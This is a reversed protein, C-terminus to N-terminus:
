AAAKSVTDRRACPRPSISRGGPRRDTGAANRQEALDRQQRHPVVQEFAQRWAAANDTLQAFARALLRSRVRSGADTKTAAFEADYATIRRDLEVWEARMGAVLKRMRPSLKPDIGDPGDLLAILTQEL